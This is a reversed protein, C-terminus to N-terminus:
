ACDETEDFTVSMGSDPWDELGNDDYESVLRAIKWGAVGVMAIIAFVGFGVITTTM